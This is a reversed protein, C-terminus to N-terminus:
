KRSLTHEFKKITQEVQDLSMENGYVATTSDEQKVPPIEKQSKIKESQSPANGAKLRIREEIEDMWSTKQTATPKQHQTKPFTSQTASREKNLSSNKSSQESNM